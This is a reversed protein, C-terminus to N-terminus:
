RELSSPGLLQIAMLRAPGPFDMRNPAPFEIKISDAPRPIPFRLLSYAKESGKMRAIEEFERQGSPLLSVKIEGPNFDPSWGAAGAYVLVVKQVPRGGRLDVRIWPIEPRGSLPPQSSWVPPRMPVPWLLGSALNEPPFDQLASSAVFRAEQGRAWDILDKDGAAELIMVAGVRDPKSEPVEEGLRWEGQGIIASRGESHLALWFHSPFAAMVWPTLTRLSPFEASRRSFLLFLTRGRTPDFASLILHSGVRLNPPNDRWDAPRGLWRVDVRGSGAILPSVPEGSADLAPGAVIWPAIGGVHVRDRSGAPAAERERTDMRAPNSRRSPAPDDGPGVAEQATRWVGSEEVPESLQILVSAPHERAFSSWLQPLPREESTSGLAFRVRLRPSTWDVEMADIQVGAPISEAAPPSPLVSVGPPLSPKDAAFVESAEICLVLFFFRVLLPPIPLHKLPFSFWDISPVYPVLSDQHDPQLLVLELNLHAVPM